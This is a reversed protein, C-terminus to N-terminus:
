KGIQDFSLNELGFRQWGRFDFHWWENPEVTFGEDEMAARLLDRHWRQRSTGGPYSPYSRKSMEDYVGPMEVARGTARDFLTLDVASGRNHRSGKQPDAVFEREQGSTAEWFLKTVWWPRYADHILLGFGRKALNMHVRALAEAASRELFARGQQYIPTGLFNDRTAYRVDLRISPDLRTLEVLIPRGRGTEPPPQLDRVEALLAAVPRRPVIRFVTATKERTWGPLDAYPRERDGERILLQGDRELVTLSEAGRKYEGILRKQRPPLEPPKAATTVEGASAGEASLYILTLM